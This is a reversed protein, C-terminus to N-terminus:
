NGVQGKRTRLERTWSTKINGQLPEPLIVEGTEDDIPQERVWASLTQVNFRPQVFDGLGAEVLAANTRSYDATGDDGTLAGAWLQNFVYITKGNVRMSTIGDREFDELLLENLMTRDREVRALEEKLERRRDDLIIFESLHIANVM